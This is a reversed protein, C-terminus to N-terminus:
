GRAKMVCYMILFLLAYPLVLKLWPFDPRKSKFRLVFATALLVMSRWWLWYGSLFYVIPGLNYDNDVVTKGNIFYFSAFLVCVFSWILQRRTPVYDSHRLCKYIFLPLLIYYIINAFWSLFLIFGSLKPFFFICVWGELLMLTGQDASYNDTEGYKCVPVGFSKYYCYVSLIVCLACLINPITNKKM